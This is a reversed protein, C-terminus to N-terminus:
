RVQQDNGRAVRRFVARHPELRIRQQRFLRSAQLEGPPHDPVSGHGTALDDGSRVRRAVGELTGARATRAVSLAAYALTGVKVAALIEGFLTRM